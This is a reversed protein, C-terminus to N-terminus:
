SVDIPGELALEGCLAILAEEKYKWYRKKEKLDELLKKRRGRQIRKVEKKREEKRESEINRRKLIHLLPLYYLMKQGPSSKLTFSIFSLSRSGENSRAWELARPSTRFLYESKYWINSEYNQIRKRL